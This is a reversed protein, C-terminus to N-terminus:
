PSTTSTRTIAARRGLDRALELEDDGYREATRNRILSIAGLTRGRATLPAVVASRYGMEKAFALHEDSQAIEAYHSELEPFLLATGARLVRAVPHQGEPDIPYRRRLEILREGVGRELAAVAVGRLMGEDEELDIVCLDAVGPVALNAITQLTESPDLSRDLVASAQALFRQREEARKRDTIDRAIVATGILRGDDARVPSYSVSVDILRGDKRRRVTEFHDVRRGAAIEALITDVESALEDPVILGIHRGVADAATYGYLREAAANWSRITGDLDKSLIADDSSAVIAALRARAEEGELRDSIDRMIKSAGIITGEASRM